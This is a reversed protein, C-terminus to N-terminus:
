CMTSKWYEQSCISSKRIHDAFKANMVIKEVAQNIKREANPVPNADFFERVDKAKDLSCLHSTCAVVMLYITMANGTAVHSLIASYNTKFFDWAIEAGRASSTAVSLQPTYCDQVKVAASISWQLCMRKLQETPAAGLSSLAWRRDADGTAEEFTRLAQRYEEEGGNALVIRFVSIRIDPSIAAKDGDVFLRFRTRAEEVVAPDRILFSEVLNFVTARLAVTAESEQGDEQSSQWGVARLVPRILEAAFLGFWEALEGVEEISGIAHALGTLVAHLTKWVVADEESRYAGLVHVVREVGIKGTVALWYLDDVVSARDVASLDRRQIAGHMRRIMEDSHAIRMLTIQGANLKVWAAPGSLPVVVTFTEGCHIDAANLPSNALASAVERCSADVNPLM